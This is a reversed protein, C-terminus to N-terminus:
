TEPNEGMIAGGGSHGDISTGDLETDETIEPVNVKDAGMQKLLEEAKKYAYKAINREQDRYKSTIRLLPNGFADKYNPDLDMYNYRWPLGAIQFQVDVTRNT